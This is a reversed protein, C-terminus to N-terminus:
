RAVDLSRSSTRASPADHLWELGLRAAWCAAVGPPQMVLVHHKSHVFVRSRDLVPRPSLSREPINDRPLGFLFIMENQGDTSRVLPM